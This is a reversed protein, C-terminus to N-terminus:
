WACAKGFHSDLAGESWERWAARRSSILDRRAVEQLGAAEAAWMAVEGATAEHLRGVRASWLEPSEPVIFMRFKRRVKAALREAQHRVYESHHAQM